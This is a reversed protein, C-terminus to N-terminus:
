SISVAPMSHKCHAAEKQEGAARRQRRKERGKTRELVEYRGRVARSDTEMGSEQRKNDMKREPNHRGALTPLM